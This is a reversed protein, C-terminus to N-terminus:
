KLGVGFDFFNVAFLATVSQGPWFLRLVRFLDCGFGLCLGGGFCCLGL